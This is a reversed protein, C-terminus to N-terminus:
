APPDHISGGTAQAALHLSAAETAVGKNHDNKMLDGKSDPQVFLPRRM